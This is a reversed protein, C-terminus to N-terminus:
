SSLPPNRKPRCPSRLASLLASLPDSRPSPVAPPTASGKSAAANTHRSAVDPTHSNLLVPPSAFCFSVAIPRFTGVPPTSMGIFVDDSPIVPGDGDPAADGVADAEPVLPLVVDGVAEFDSDFDGVAM